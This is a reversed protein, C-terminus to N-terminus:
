NRLTDIQFVTQCAIQSLVHYMIKESKFNVSKITFDVFKRSSIGTSSSVGFSLLGYVIVAVVCLETNCHNM